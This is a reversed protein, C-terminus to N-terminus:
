GGQGEPPGDAVVPGAGERGGAQRGEPAATGAWPRDAGGAEIERTKLVIMYEYMSQLLAYALGPAGDLFGGKLLYLWVFKGLPRAPLRHFLGKLCARRAEPSPGAFLTRVLDPRRGARRDAVIQRAELTSYDNHRALWHSIGRSFPYHDLCGGLDGVPGDVRTVPNVLRAYRVREPRFLRIYHPTAQVRRLQRGMFFDRRRLRFAACGRPEAAADRMAGALKPTAREDADLYFVWPHRFPISALAWNQHTSWDDFPRVV